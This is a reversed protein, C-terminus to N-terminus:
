INLLKADASFRYALNSCLEATRADQMQSQELVDAFKKKVTVPVGRRILVSEGNVSVFVDDRYRDGDQFLQITVPAESPDSITNNTTNTNKM